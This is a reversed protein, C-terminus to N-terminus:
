GETRYENGKEVLTLCGVRPWYRRGCVDEVVYTEQERWYGRLRPCPRIKPYRGYPVVEVIRGVKSFWSVTDGLQFCGEGRTNPPIKNKYFYSLPPVKNM